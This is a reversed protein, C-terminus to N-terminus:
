GQTLPAPVETVDERTTLKILRIRKHQLQALEEAMLMMAGLRAEDATILPTWVGSMQVACVGEGSGDHSVFVWLSEIRPLSNPPHHVATGNPYITVNDDNM